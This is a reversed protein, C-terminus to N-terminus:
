MCVRLTVTAAGNVVAYFAPSESILRQTPQPTAQARAPGSVTALVAIIALVLSPRRALPMM